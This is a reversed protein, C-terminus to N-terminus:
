VGGELLKESACSGKFTHIRENDADSIGWFNNSAIIKKIPIGINYTILEREDFQNTRYKPTTTVNVNIEFGPVDLLEALQETMEKINEDKFYGDQKAQEKAANIIIESQSIYYDNKEDQPFQLFLNMLILVSGLLAVVKTM